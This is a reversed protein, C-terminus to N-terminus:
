ASQSPAAVLLDVAELDQKLLMLMLRGFRQGVVAAVSHLL